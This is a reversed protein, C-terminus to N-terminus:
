LALDVQHAEPKEAETYPTDYLPARHGDEAKPTEQAPDTEAEFVAGALQKQREAELLNADFAPPPGTPKDPDPPTPPRKFEKSENQADGGPGTDGRTENRIKTPATAATVTKVPSATDVAALSHEPAPAVPM